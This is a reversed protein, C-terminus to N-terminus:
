KRLYVFLTNIKEFIYFLTNIKEFIYSVFLTNIKEFIYPCPTWVVNKVEVLHDFIHYFICGPKLYAKFAEKVQFMVVSHGGRQFTLRALIPIIMIMWTLMIM